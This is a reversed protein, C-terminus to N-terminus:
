RQRLRVFAPTHVDHWTAGVRRWEQDLADDATLDLDSRADLDLHQARYDNVRRASRALLAQVFLQARILTNAQGDRLGVADDQQPREDLVLGPLAPTGDQM